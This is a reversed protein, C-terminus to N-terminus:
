IVKKPVIGALARDLAEEAKKPSVLFADLLMYNRLRAKLFVNKDNRLRFIFVQKYEPENALETEVSFKMAEIYDKLREPSLKVKSITDLMSHFTEKESSNLDEYKLNFKTLIEDIM